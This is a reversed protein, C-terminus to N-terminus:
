EFIALLENLGADVRGLDGVHGWNINEPDHGFHEDALDQLRELKASIAAYRELYADIANQQTAM